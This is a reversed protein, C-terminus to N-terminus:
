FVVSNDGLSMKHSANIPVWSQMKHPGGRGWSAPPQTPRLYLFNPLKLNGARWTLKTRGRSSFKGTNTEPWSEM